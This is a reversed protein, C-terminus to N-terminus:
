TGPRAFVAVQWVLGVRRHRREFGARELAGEVLSTPHIFTRFASRKLRLFMNILVDGARMVLGDRPYVLAVVRRAHAASAALLEAANPYCCVVRDLTVVDAIPVESALDLFDGHRFTVRDTHGRRAAEGTAARLYASSADVHVAAAAGADLLEHHIAGVGGGVDLVTAGSVGLSRVAELLRRTSTRPGRRRYTALERRAIRDSFESELGVCQTCAM